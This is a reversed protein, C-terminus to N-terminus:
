LSIIEILPCDKCHTNYLNLEDEDEVPRDESWAKQQMEDQYKCYDNCITEALKKLNCVIRM